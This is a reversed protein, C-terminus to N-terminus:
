MILLLFMAFYCVLVIYRYMSFLFIASLITNIPVTILYPFKDSGNVFIDIDKTLINVVQAKKEEKM